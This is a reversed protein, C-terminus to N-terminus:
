EGGMWVWWATRTENKHAFQHQPNAASNQTRISAVPHPRVHAPAGRPCLVAGRACSGSSVTLRSAVWETSVRARSGLTHVGVASVRRTPLPGELVVCVGVVIVVVSVLPARRGSPLLDCRGVSRGTNQPSPRPTHKKPARFPAHFLLPPRRPNTKPLFMFPTPCCPHPQQLAQDEVM